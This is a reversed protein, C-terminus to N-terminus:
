RRFFRKRTAYITTAPTAATLDGLAGVAVAPTSEREAM